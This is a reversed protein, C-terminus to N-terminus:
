LSFNNELRLSLISFENSFQNLINIHTIFFRKKKKGWVNKERITRLTNWACVIQHRPIFPPIRELYKENRKARRNTTCRPSYFHPLNRLFLDFLTCRRARIMLFIDFSGNSFPEDIRREDNGGYWSGTVTVYRVEEERGIGGGREGRSLFACESLLVM